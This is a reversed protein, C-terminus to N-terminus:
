LCIAPDAARYHYDYGPKFGLRRYVALAPANAADVQLYATRAGEAAARRLLEACLAGALGGNRAAPATFVDYLGVWHMQRAYQGCAIVEDQRRLLWGCYPVPSQALRQAHAQQQDAPSSRLRGVARAYAEADARELRLDAPLPAAADLAMGALEAVLVRTPDFCQLGAAALAEDLGAPQSFPTIRVVLPLGAERYLADALALKDALPLRGPAVANISRARKAKGPCRRVLWGDLWLQQPPASANLAADEIAALEGDDLAPAAATM